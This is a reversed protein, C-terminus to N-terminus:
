NWNVPLEKNNETWLLIFIDTRFHKFASTCCLSCRSHCHVRNNIKKKPTTLHCGLYVRKMKIQYLRLNLLLIQLHFSYHLNLVLSKVIICSCEGMICELCLSSPTYTTIIRQPWRIYKTTQGWGKLINCLIIQMEFTNTVFLFIFSKRKKKCVVIYYRSGM